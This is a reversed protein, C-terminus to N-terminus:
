GPPWQMLRGSLIHVHIHPVAQGANEGANVVLRYGGKEPFKRERVVTSVANMVRDMTEMQGSPIEHIAAYHDKPIALLHIPAKPDIDNIVITHEDEYVKEAPIEGKVIKCFLCDAM